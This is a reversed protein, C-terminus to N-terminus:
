TKSPPGQAIYALAEAVLGESTKRATDLVLRADVFPEYEARRQEVQAWTIEAMGEIDRVRGEVRQRHVDLDSCVCEVVRLRVDLRGALSRWMARPAEVPNVADIVVMRGLRLLEEAMTAAVMYAAVGTADRSLGARWMAAEIPDISFAAAVLARALGEAILSKGTGPLGAM